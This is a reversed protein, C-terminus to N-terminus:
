EKFTIYPLLRNVKRADGTELCNNIISICKERYPIQMQMLWYKIEKLFMQKSKICTTESLLKMLELCIESLISSKYISDKPVYKKFFKFLHEEKMEELTIGKIKLATAFTPNQQEVETLAQIM